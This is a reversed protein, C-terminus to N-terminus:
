SVARRAARRPPRVIGEKPTALAAGVMADSWIRSEAGTVSINGPTFLLTWTVPVPPTVAPATDKAGLTRSSYIGGAIIVALMPNAVVAHVVRQMKAM